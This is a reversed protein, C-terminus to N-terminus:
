EVTSAQLGAAGAEVRGAEALADIAPVASPGPTTLGAAVVFNGRCSCRTSRLDNGNDSASALGPPKWCLM